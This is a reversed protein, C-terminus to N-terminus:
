AMRADTEVELADAGSEQLLHQAYHDLFYERFFPDPVVIHLTEGERRSGLIGGIWRSYNEPSLRTRLRECIEPWEAVHTYEFLRLQREEEHHKNQQMQQREEKEQQCRRQREEFVDWIAWACYDLSWIQHPPRGVRRALETERQMARWVGTMIDNLDLGSTRWEKVLEQEAESLKHMRRREGTAREFAEILSGENLIEESEEPQDTIVEAIIESEDSRLEEVWAPESATKPLVEVLLPQALNSKKFYERSWEAMARWGPTYHLVWDQCDAKCPYWEVRMLFGTEQLEKHARGLIQRAKSFHQQQKCGLLACLRSYRVRYPQHTRRLGYFKVGLFEYLRRALWKRLDDRFGRDLPRVYGAAINDFVDHHIYLRTKEIVSKDDRRNQQQDFAYDNILSFSVNRRIQQKADFFFNSDIKTHALCKIAKIVTKLNKGGKNKSPMYRRIESLTTIVPNTLVGIDRQLHMIHEVSRWVNAELEGPWGFDLHSRVIWHRTIEHDQTRVIEKYEARTDTPNDTSICFYPLQLLQVENTTMETARTLVEYPDQTM